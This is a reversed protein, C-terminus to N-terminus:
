FIIPFQKKLAFLILANMSEGSNAAFAKLRQKVAISEFTIILRKTQKENKM